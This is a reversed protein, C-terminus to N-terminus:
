QTATPRNKLFNLATKYALRAKTGKIEALNVPGLDEFKGEKLLKEVLKRQEAPHGSYKLKYFEVMLQDQQPKTLKQVEPDRLINEEMGARIETKLANLQDLLLVKQLATSSSKYTDDTMVYDAIRGEISPGSQKAAIRNLMPSRYRILRDWPKSINLRTLEKQVIGKHRGGGIGVMQRQAGGERTHPRTTAPSIAPREYGEVPIWGLLKGEKTPIPRHIIGLANRYASGYAGMLMPNIDGRDPLVRWAPDLDGLVDRVVNLPVVPRVLYNGIFTSVNEAIRQNYKEKQTEGAGSVGAILDLMYLGQGVRFASGFSSQFFDRYFKSNLNDNLTERAITKMRKRNEESAILRQPDFSTAEGEAPKDWFGLSKLLLDAVLMYPAYVGYFAKADSFKGKSINKMALTLGTETSTPLPLKKLEYWEASPGQAARLQMAGFLLSFGVAQQSIVKNLSRGEKGLVPGTKVADYKSKMRKQHPTLELGKDVAEQLGRPYRAAKAQVWALRELPLLGVLPAYQFNHKVMSAIFRPYPIFGSGVVPVSFARIFIDAASNADFVGYEKKGAGTFRTQYTFDLAEDMSEQIHKTPIQNFRGQESLNILAKRGGVRQSLESVFVARKFSNDIYTNLANAKRAFKTLPGAGHTTGEIDALARFLNRYEPQMNTQFIDAFARAEANDFLNRVFDVPKKLKLVGDVVAKQVVPDDPRAGKRMLATATDLGGELFNTFIYMGTRLTANELNRITTAPQITMMAKTFKDYEKITSVTGRTLKRFLGTVNAGKEMARVFAEADETLAATEVEDVTKTVDTPDVKKVTVPVEVLDSLAASVSRVVASQLGLVRGANSLEAVYLSTFQPLTLDYKQLLTSIFETKAAEDDFGNLIKALVTTVRDEKLNLKLKKLIPEGTARAPTKMATKLIEITAGALRFQLDEESSFAKLFRHLGKSPSTAKEPDVPSILRKDFYQLGEKVKDKDLAEKGFGTKRIHNLVNVFEDTQEEATVTVSKGLKSVGSTDITTPYLIEQAMAEQAAIIREEEAGKARKLLGLASMQRKGTLAGVGAGLFGGALGGVVTERIVRGTGFEREGLSGEVRAQEAAYGRYGGAIAETVGAGAAGEVAKRSVLGKPLAKTIAAGAPAVARQMSARLAGVTAQRAAVRAAIAGGAGLLKGAGGTVLGIYTSPATAVGLGYDKVAGWFGTEGSEMRDWTSYLKGIQLKDEDELGIIHALDNGATLENVDADRMHSVFASYIDEASALDKLEYGKRDQLFQSADLLFQNNKMLYKKNLKNADEQHYEAM